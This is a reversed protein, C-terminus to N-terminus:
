RDAGKLELWQDYGQDTNKGPTIWWWQFFDVCDKKRSAELEAIRELAKDAIAAHLAEDPIGLHVALDKHSKIIDSM